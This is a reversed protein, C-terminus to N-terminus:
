SLNETSCNLDETAGPGSEELGTSMRGNGDRPLCSSGKHPSQILAEQLSQWCVGRSEEKSWYFFPGKKNRPLGSWLPAM